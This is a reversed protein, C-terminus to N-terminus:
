CFRSCMSSNRSVSSSFFRLHGETSQLILLPFSGLLFFGCASCFLVVGSSQLALAFSFLRAPISLALFLPSFLFFKFTPLIPNIFLNLEPQVQDRGVDRTAKRELDLRRNLFRQLALRSSHV